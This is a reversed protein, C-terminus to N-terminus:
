RSVSRIVQASVSRPRPGVPAAMRVPWGQRAVARQGIGVEGPPLLGDLPSISRGDGKRQEGAAPGQAGNGDIRSIGIGKGRILHLQEHLQRGIQGVADGEQAQAGSVGPRFGLQAPQVVLQLLLHLGPRLLQFVGHVSQLILHEAPGPSLAVEALPGLHQFVPSVLKLLKRQLQGLRLVALAFAEGLNQVVIQLLDQRGRREVKMNQPAPELVVLGQLVDGLVYILQELLRNVRGAAQRVLETRDHEIPVVKARRELPQRLLHQGLVTQRDVDLDPVVHVRSRVRVFGEQKPGGLLNQEVDDLVGFDLLGPDPQLAQPFLYPQRDAILPLPEVRLRQVLGDAKPQQTDALAHFQETTAHSGPGFCLPVNRM